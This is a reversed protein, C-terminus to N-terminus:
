ENDIRECTEEIAAIMADAEEVSLIGLFREWKGGAPVPSNTKKFDEVVALLEGLRGEPIEEITKYIKEKTTM